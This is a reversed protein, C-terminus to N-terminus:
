KKEFKAIFFGETGTKHPYFRLTGYLKGGVEGIGPGNLQVLKAGSLNIFKEVVTENEEYTLTCTSYVMSGGEKLMEFGALLLKLQIDAFKRVDRYSWWKIVEPNKHLTGLASCPADVLVYDFYNKYFKTLREGRDISIAVNLCGLREINNVTAKTRDVSADNALIFGTNGMIASLLSTKSGPASAIDLVYSHKSPSLIHAPFMSALDQVYYYGLFHELTKGLEYPYYDVKFAYPLVTESLKFGKKRLRERLKEPSTKLTNARIYPRITQFTITHLFEETDDGMIEKLYSYLSSNQKIYRKLM